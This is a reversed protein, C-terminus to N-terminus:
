LIVSLKGRGQNAPVGLVNVNLRKGTPACANSQREYIAERRTGARHWEISRWGQLKLLDWEGGLGSKGVSIM